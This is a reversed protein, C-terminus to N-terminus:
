FIYDICLESLFMCRETLLTEAPVKNGDKDIIADGTTVCTEGPRQEDWLNSVHFVGDLKLTHVLHSYESDMYALHDKWEKDKQMFKITHENM